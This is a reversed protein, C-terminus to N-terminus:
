SARLRQMLSEANDQLARDALPYLIGEEKANHQQNLMHLTELDGLCTERDRTRVATALEDLLQRMQQHEMRMVRTPGGAGPNAQELEPFLVQEERAFHRLLAERFATTKEDAANWDSAAIAAECAALLRDCCHHDDTLHRSVTETMDSAVRHLRTRNERLCLPSGQGTDYKTQYPSRLSRVM